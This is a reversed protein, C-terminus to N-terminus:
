PRPLNQWEPGSAPWPSRQFPGLVPLVRDRVLAVSEAVM